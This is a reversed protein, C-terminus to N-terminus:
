RFWAGVKQWFGKKLPKPAPPQVAPSLISRDNFEFRLRMVQNTYAPASGDYSFVFPADAVMHKGEAVIREALPQKLSDPIASPLLPNVPAPPPNSNVSATKVAPIAPSAAPPPAPKPAEAVYSERRTEPPPPCGCAIGKPNLSVDAVHGKHFVVFDSPKVQYSGDGMQESVIVGGTSANESRVCTDGQPSIGINLDFEGPGTLVFRFDPTIFVDASSGILYRSQLTGSGFSFMLDRGNASSSVSVSTRQCITLSGGRNLVLNAPEQGADISSGSLVTTGSNALTVSGRVKATTSYLQGVPAQAYSVLPLCLLAAPLIKCFSSSM